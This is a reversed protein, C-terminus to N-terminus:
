VEGQHRHILQNMLHGSAPALSVGLMGHGTNLFVNKLPYLPAIVPLGTASLPRFGHWPRIKNLVERKLDPLYDEITKLIGEVRGPLVSPNLGALEMTGGLRLASGMPTVAVRGEVLIMPTQWPPDVRELTINYGKGGELNLNGGAKRALEGSWAGAAIIFADAKIDGTDCALTIVKRNNKDFQVVQTNPKWEVKNKLYQSLASMLEQPVLHMDELYHIGGKARIRVGPNLAELEKLGLVQTPIGLKEAKKAWEIEEALAHGSNCTMVIGKPYLVFHLEKGAIETYLRRSWNLLASLPGISNQVHDSNAHKYFQWGWQIFDSALRPKLYFPSTDSFMWKISQRVVGPAALPVFHSPCIMGANGHSAGQDFSYNDVIVVEHGSQVLYYASFMGIIGGGIICVRM